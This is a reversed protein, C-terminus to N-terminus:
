LTHELNCVGQITGEGVPWLSLETEQLSEQWGQIHLELAAPLIQTGWPVALQMWLGLSIQGFHLQRWTHELKEADASETPRTEM